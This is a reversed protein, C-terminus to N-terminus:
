KEENEILKILQSMDSNLNSIATMVSDSLLPNKVKMTIRLSSLTKIKADVEHIKKLNLEDTHIAIKSLLDLIEKSQQSVSSENNESQLEACLSAADFSVRAIADIVSQPISGKFPKSM